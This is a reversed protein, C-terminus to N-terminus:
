ILHRTIKNLEHKKEDSSVLYMCMCNRFIVVYKQVGQINDTMDFFDIHCHIHDFTWM